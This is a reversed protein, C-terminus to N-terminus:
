RCYTRAVVPIPAESNKQVTSKWQNCYFYGKWNGVLGPTHCVSPRRTEHEESRSGLVFKGEAMKKYLTQGKADTAFPLFIQPMDVIETEYLALQVM